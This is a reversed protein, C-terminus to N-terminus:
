EIRIVDLIKEFAECAAVFNSHEDNWHAVIERVDYLEKLWGALQEHERACELCNKVPENYPMRPNAYRDGMERLQEAETRLEKTKEECHKIADSLSLM